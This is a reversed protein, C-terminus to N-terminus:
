GKRELKRETSPIVDYKMKFSFFFVYKSHHLLMEITNIKLNYM